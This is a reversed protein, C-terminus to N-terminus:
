PQEQALPAAERQKIRGRAAMIGAMAILSAGAVFWGDLLEDWFLYGYLGGFVVSFFTFPAVQAAPAGAYGRTMLMQGLTGLLAIALAYGWQAPQPMQWAWFLPVSSVLGGLMAFYFVTRDPPESRGLRRVTAKAVAAFFGGALGILAVLNFDGGPRLVLLVGLLGIPLAILALMSPREAFWLYAIAPIFIPATMKLLMGDALALHGLAYFFCYMASVGMIARVLHLHPVATSLAGRGAHALLPALLLIGLVNRLFVLMENSMGSLAAVKVTAGMSAFMLEALTIQAAALLLRNADTLHAGTAM